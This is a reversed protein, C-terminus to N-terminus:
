EGALSARLASLGTRIRTKVTGEPEGLALAVESYSLGGFYAAAIARRQAAPLERLAHRLRGASDKAVVEAEPGLAPDELGAVLDLPAHRAAQRARARLRDIARSRALTHLWAGVSGRAAAYTGANQWVHLYVDLTVEEAAERERLIRLALGYVQSSTADYLAALAAPDRAAVGRLLAASAAEERDTRDMEKTVALARMGLWVVDPPPDSTSNKLKGAGGALPAEGAALSM